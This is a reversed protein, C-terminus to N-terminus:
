LEGKLLVVQARIGGHPAKRFHPHGLDDMKNWTLLIKWGYVMCKPTGGNISVRMNWRPLTTEECFVWSASPGHAVTIVALTPM